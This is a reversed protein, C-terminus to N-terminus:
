PVLFSDNGDAPPETATYRKVGVAPGINAPTQGDSSRPSLPRVSWRVSGDAILMNQGRSGHVVSPAAISANQDRAFRQVTIIFLPNRDALIVSQPSASLKTAKPRFQNQYSYSIAAHSPFDFHKATLSGPTPAHRNAPCNLQDPSVYGLRALLYLNASNSQVPQNASAKEGVRWWATNPKVAYRPLFGQNSEAFSAFGAGIAQQGMACATRNADSQVRSMVPMLLSVGILFVAAATMVQRWAVGLTQRPEALVQVQEAFRERQRQQQVRELTKARLQDLHGTDCAAEAEGASPADRDLLAMLRRVPEAGASDVALTLESGAESSSDSTSGPEAQAARAQLMADLVAADDPRLTAKPQDDHDHGQLDDHIPNNRDSM